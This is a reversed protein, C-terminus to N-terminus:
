ASWPNVVTLGTGVFDSVNRTALGDAGAGATTAAIVADVASIPMGARERASAIRAYDISAASDFPLIRGEFLEDLLRGVKQALQERRGGSPLRAVGYLLEAATMSTLYLEDTPRADVWALVAADPIPRMLESVVNTDLVIM